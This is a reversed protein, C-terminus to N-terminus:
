DTDKHALSEPRAPQISKKSRCAGGAVALYYWKFLATKGRKKIQRYFPTTVIAKSINFKAIKDM